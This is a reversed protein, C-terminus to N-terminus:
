PWRDHLSSQMLLGFVHSCGVPTPNLWINRAIHPGDVCPGAFNSLRNFHIGVQHLFVSIVFRRFNESWNLTQRAHERASSARLAWAFGLDLIQM